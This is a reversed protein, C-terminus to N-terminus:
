PQGVEVNENKGRWDRLIWAANAAHRSVKGVPGPGFEALLKEGSRHVWRCARDCRQHDAMARASWEGIMPSRVQLDFGEAATLFRKWLEAAHLEDSNVVKDQGQRRGALLSVATRIVEQHDCFWVGIGSSIKTKLVELALVGGSLEAIYSAEPDLIAVLKVAPAGALRIICAAASQHHGCGGDSCISFKESL